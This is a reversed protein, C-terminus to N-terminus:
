CVIIFIRLHLFRSIRSVSTHQKTMKTARAKAIKKQMDKKAGMVGEEEDPLTM